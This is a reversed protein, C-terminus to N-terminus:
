ILGKGKAFLYNQVGSGVAGSIGQLGQQWIQGQAQIGQAAINGANLAGQASTQGMNGMVNSINSTQGPLNALGSLGQLGQDFNQKQENYATLLAENQLGTNYQALNSQANGSRLGGTASQNRLISEEGVQRNGMIAAYLPSQKAQEIMQGQPMAFGGPANYIENLKKLASERYERPLADIEKLYALQERQAQLSAETARDSAAAATGAADRTASAAQSSGLLGLGGGLVASGLIAAGTGIAM